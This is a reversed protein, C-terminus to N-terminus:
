PQFFIVSNRLVTGPILVTGHEMPLTLYEAHEVLDQMAEVAKAFEEPTAPQEKTTYNGVGNPLTVTMKM